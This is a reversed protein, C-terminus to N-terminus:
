LAVLLRGLSVGKEGQLTRRKRACTEGGRKGGKKKSEEEEMRQCVLRAPGEAFPFSMGQWERGIEQLDFSM